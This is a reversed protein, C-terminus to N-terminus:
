KDKLHRHWDEIKTKISNFQTTFRKEFGCEKIATYAMDYQSLLKAHEREIDKGFSVKPLQMAEIAELSRYIGNIDEAEAFKKAALLFLCLKDINYGDNYPQNKALEMFHEASEAALAKEFKRELRTIEEKTQKLIEDKEELLSRRQWWQILGMVTIIIAFGALFITSLRNYANNYLSDVKTIVDLINVDTVCQALIRFM